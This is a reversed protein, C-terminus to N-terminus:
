ESPIKLTWLVGQKVLTCYEARHWNDHFHLGSFGFSRGGDPREYAWAVMQLRDDIMADLLPHLGDAPAVRKLQYYFEDRIRFDKLGRAIPHAPDSIRVDTDVVQYKRDPGGHCAGFLKLFPQIPEASRTGMGWHLVSLGGGRAALQALADYRRPDAQCWRAGEALFLVAGDAAKLLEPGEAWPEDANVFQVEVGDVPALLEALRRLGAVYEHTQPPHGDPGQGLLLLKKPGQAIAPLGALALVLLILFAARAM